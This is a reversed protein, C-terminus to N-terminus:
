PWTRDEFMRRRMAQWAEDEMAEGRKVCSLCRLAPKAAWEGWVPNTEVTFLKGDLMYVWDYGDLIRRYPPENFVVVGVCGDPPLAAWAVDGSAFTRGDSYYARWRLPAM